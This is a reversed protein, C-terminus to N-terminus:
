HVNKYLIDLCEFISTDLNNDKCKYELFIHPISISKVLDSYIEDLLIHRNIETLREICINM